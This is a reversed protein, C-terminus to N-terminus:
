SEQRNGSPNPDTPASPTRRWILFMGAGAVAAVVLLVVILTVNPGGDGSTPTTAPAAVTDTVSPAPSLSGTATATASPSASATASDTASPSGSARKSASATASATATASSTSKSGGNKGDGSSGSGSTATPKATSALTVSFSLPDIVDGAEYGGFDSSVAKAGKKTLTVTAGSLSASTGSGTVNAGSLTAFGNIRSVTRPDSWLRTALTLGLTGKGGGTLTVTPDIISIEHIYHAPYSYTVKGKLKVTGKDKAADLSGASVTWTYPASAGSGDFSAGNSPTVTGGGAVYNRFSAKFGWSATGGTVNQAAAAHAPAALGVPLGVALAAALLGAVAHSRAPFAPLM